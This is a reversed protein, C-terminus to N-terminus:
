GHPSRGELRDWILRSDFSQAALMTFVVSLAFCVAALGPNIAALVDFQVLATLIAVVFVDIMSWRGIFEVVEHLILLTHPDSRHPRATLIALYAIVIFKGVPIVISAVFVIAAIGYAEHHMLDIVGGIITSEETRFSQTTRLMPYINAPIYAILGVIMWAWVKQLSQHDRSQLRDSCRPCRGSASRAVLGCSRCIVRGAELATIM